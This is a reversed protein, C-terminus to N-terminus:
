DVHHIRSFNQGLKISCLELLVDQVWPLHHDLQREKLQELCTGVSDGFFPAKDGNGATLAEGEVSKQCLGLAYLQMKVQKSHIFSSLTSKGFICFTSSLSSQFHLVAAFGARTCLCKFAPNWKLVRSISRFQAM